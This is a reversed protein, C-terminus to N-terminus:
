ADAGERRRRRLVLGTVVAAAGLLGAGAAVSGGTVALNTGRAAPAPTASATPATPVSATPSPSASPAGATPTPTSPPTATSTPTPTPTATPAGPISWRAAAFSVTVTAVPTVTSPVGGSLALCEVSLEASGTGAPVLEAFSSGMPVVVAGAGAPVTASAVVASGGVPTVTLRAGDRVGVPCGGSAEATAFSPYATADGAFIAAGAADRIVLEDATAAFAGAAGLPLLAAVAVAAVPLLRLSSTSSSM